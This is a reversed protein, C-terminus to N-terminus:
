QEGGQKHDETHQPISHNTIGTAMGGEDIAPTADVQNSSAAGEAKFLDLQKPEDRSYNIGLFQYLGARKDLCRIRYNERAKRLSRNISDELTDSGAHAKVEDFLEWRTFRQGRDKLTLFMDVAVNVPISARRHLIRSEDSERDTGMASRLFNMPRHLTTHKMM